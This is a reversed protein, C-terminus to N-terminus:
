TMIAAMLLWFAGDTRHATRFIQKAKLGTCLLDLFRQMLLERLRAHQAHIGIRGPRLLAILLDQRGKRIFLRIDQHPRLHDHLSMIKGIHCQYTNQRRIQRQVLVIVPGPLPSKLQEGLSGSPGSPPLLRAFHHDLGILRLMVADYMRGSLIIRAEILLLNGIPLQHLIRRRGM